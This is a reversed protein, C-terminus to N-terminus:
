FGGAARNLGYTGALAAPIPGSGRTIDGAIASRIQAVFIDVVNQGGSQRQEVQGAKSGNEILNVTIGGGAGGQVGLKGNPGRALPLIAEPGAEGMLGVGKAFPFVTPRNVIGGMAFPIMGARDFAGGNAVAVDAIPAGGPRFMSQFINSLFGSAGKTIPDLVQKAQLRVIDKLMSNVLDGFSAKGTVVFEAFTDAAKNGWSEVANALDAFTDKGSKRLEQQAAVLRMTEEGAQEYYEALQNEDGRKLMRQLADAENAASRQAAEFAKTAESQARATALLRQEEESDFGEALNREGLRMLRERDAKLKKAAAVAATDDSAAPADQKAAPAVPPGFDQSAKLRAAIIKQLVALEAQANKLRTGFIPDNPTQGGQTLFSITGQLSAARDKLEQLPKSDAGALQAGLVASSFLGAGAKRAEVVLRTYEAMPGLLEDAISKGLASASLALKRM